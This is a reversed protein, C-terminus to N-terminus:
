QATTHPTVIHHMSRWTTIMMPFLGKGSVKNIGLKHQLHASTPDLLCVCKTIRLGPQCAPAVPLSSGKKETRLAQRARVLEAAPTNNRCGGLRSHNMRAHDQLNERDMGLSVVQLYQASSRAAPHQNNTAFQQCAPRMRLGLVTDRRFLGLVHLMYGLLCVSLLRVASAHECAGQSTNQTRPGVPQQPGVLQCASAM